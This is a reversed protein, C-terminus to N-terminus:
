GTGGSGGNPRNWGVQRASRGTWRAFGAGSHMLVDAGGCGFRWRSGRGFVRARIEDGSEKERKHIATGGAGCVAARFVQQVSGGFGIVEFSEGPKAFGGVARGERHAEGGQRDAADDIEADGAGGFEAGGSEVNRISLHPSGDEEEVAAAVHMAAEIGVVSDAAAEGAGGAGCDEGEIVAEGRFVFKRVGEVVGEGCQVPEGDLGPAPAAFDGHGTVAGAASEGGREGLVDAVFVPAGTFVLVGIFVLVARFVLGAGRGCFWEGGIEGELDQDVGGGVALHRERGSFGEGPAVEQCHAHEFPVGQLVDSGDGVDGAGDEGGAQVRIQFVEGGGEDDGGLEIGQAVFGGEVGVIEAFGSDGDGIEADGTGDVGEQVEIGDHPFSFADEAEGAGGEAFGEGFSPLVPSLVFQCLWSRRCPFQPYPAHCRLPVPLCSASCPHGSSFPFVRRFM